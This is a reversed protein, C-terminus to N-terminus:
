RLEAEPDRRSRGSGGVANRHAGGHSQIRRVAHRGRAQMDAKTVKDVREVYRFLERWDGFLTQYVRAARRPRHQQQALAASRSERADQLAAARRRDRRGEPDERGRRADRRAGHRQRHRPGARRVAHLPQPYKVGPFGGGGQVAVAIKKDRVLMRYLRSTNGRTLIDALADYAPEDPETGAPKHYGEVYFPQSPDSLTLVTEAIQTPEITRMPEPKPRAPIRGFYKEIM